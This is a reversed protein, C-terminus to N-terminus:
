SDSWQAFVFISFHFYFTTFIYLPQASIFFQLKQNQKIAKPSLFLTSEDPFLYSNKLIIVFIFSSSYDFSLSFGAIIISDSLSMRQFSKVLIELLVYM